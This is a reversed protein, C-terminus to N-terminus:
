QEMVLWGLNLPRFVVAKNHKWIRHTLFKSVFPVTPIAQKQQMIGSAEAQFVQIAPLLKFM